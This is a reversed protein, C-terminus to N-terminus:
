IGGDINIVAGNVYDSRALWRVAEAIDPIAGFKRSPIRARIEERLEESLTDILGAEFYGLSLVNSTVGFRGYEKALVRSLGSLASKSAAYAVTGVAGQTGVISSLHVIRGWRENIMRPILAKSLLFDAKLNVDMVADWDASECQLVVKDISKAACHVITIRTLAADHARVFDLIEDERSLDVRVMRLNAGTDGSSVPTRHYLGLVSEERSLERSLASGIGGSAGSVIIM